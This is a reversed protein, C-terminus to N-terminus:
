FHALRRMTCTTTALYSPQNSASQQDSDISSPFIPTPLLQWRVQPSAINHCMYALYHMNNRINLCPALLRVLLKDPGAELFGHCSFPGCERCYSLPTRRHRANKPVHGVVHWQRYDAEFRLLALDTSRLAFLVSGDVSAMKPMSGNEGFTEQPFLHPAMRWQGTDPNWVEGSNEFRDSCAHGGIAYLSGQIVLLAAGSRPKHMDAPLAEWALPQDASFRGGSRSYRIQLRWAKKAPRPRGGANTMARDVGGVAYLCQSSGDFVLPTEHSIYHNGTRGSVTTRASQWQRQQQLDFVHLYSASGDQRQELVAINSTLAGSGQVLRLTNRMRMWTQDDSRLLSSGLLLQDHPTSGSASGSTTTTFISIALSLDRFVTCAV